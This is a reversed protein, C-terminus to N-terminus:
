VAKRGLRILITVAFCFCRLAKIARKLVTHFQILPTPNAKKNKINSASTKTINDKKFSENSGNMNIKM